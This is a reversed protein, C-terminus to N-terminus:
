QSGASIMKSNSKFLDINFILIHSDSLSSFYSSLSLFSDRLHILTVSLCYIWLFFIITRLSLYYWSDALIQLSLILCELCHLNMNSTGGSYSSSLSILSIITSHFSNLISAVRIILYILDYILYTLAQIETILSLIRGIL